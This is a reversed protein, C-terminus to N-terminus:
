ADLGHCGRNDWTKRRTFYLAVSLATEFSEMDLFIQFSTLIFVGM